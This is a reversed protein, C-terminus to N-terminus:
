SIRYTFSKYSVEQKKRTRERDPRVPVINKLALTEVDPPSIDGCLFKRLIMVLTAFNIKYKFKRKRKNLILRSAILEALNYLILRAFVEHPIHEAKKTHFYLLGIAYKLHRFSTEVGWRMAYLGKILAPPFSEAPLNTVVSEYSDDSIRFRIIRISLTYWEAPANRIGHLNPLFDFHVNNPIWRYSNRIKLLEKIERNKRRTISLKVSMDFEEADPLEFSRLISTKSSHDKVRILFKWGKEAAHALNNYSGYGRDAIVIARDILSRDVMSCFAAHENEEMCGQIVADVYTRNLIDYMANLHLLNYPAQGNSGPFFSKKDSPDTPIHIDSGDIALLRYGLYRDNSVANDVSCAFSRFLTEMADPALKDRQQIFASVSPIERPDPFLSILENGLSKGEMQLICKITKDFPLKRSRTFDKEPHKVCRSIDLSEIEKFLMSKLDAPKM